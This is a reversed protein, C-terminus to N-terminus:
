RTVAFVVAGIAILALAVLAIVVVRSGKAPTPVPPASTQPTTMPISGHAPTSTM